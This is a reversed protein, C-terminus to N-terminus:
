LCLGLEGSSSVGCGFGVLGFMFVLLGVVRFCFWLVVGVCEIRFFLVLLVIWDVLGLILWDPFSRFCRLAFRFGM